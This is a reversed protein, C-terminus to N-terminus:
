VLIVSLANLSNISSLYHVHESSNLMKHHVKYQIDQRIFHKLKKVQYIFQKQEEIGYIHGDAFCLKIGCFIVHCSTTFAFTQAYALKLICGAQM